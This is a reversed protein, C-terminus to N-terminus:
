LNFHTSLEIGKNQAELISM